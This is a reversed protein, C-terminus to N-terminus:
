KRIQVEFGVYKDGASIGNSSITRWRDSGILIIDGPEPESLNSLDSEALYLKKDGYRISGGDSVEHAKYDDLVANMTDSTTTPSVYEQTEPDVSAGSERRLTVSTGFQDMKTKMLTTFKDSLATM